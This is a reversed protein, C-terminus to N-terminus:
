YWTVQICPLIMLVGVLPISFLAHNVLLRLTFFAEPSHCLLFQAHMLQGLERCCIGFYPLMQYRGRQAKFEQHMMEFSQDM